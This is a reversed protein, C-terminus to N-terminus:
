TRASSVTINNRLIFHLHSFHQLIAEQLQQKEYWTNCEGTLIVNEDCVEIKICWLLSRLDKQRLLSTIQHVTISPTATINNM